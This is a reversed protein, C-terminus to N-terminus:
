LGHHKKYIEEAKKLTELDNIGILRYDNELTYSDVKYNKGLIEVIDTLYYEKVQNNPKIQHLAKLLIQIDVCYLASNIEKIKQEEETADKQEVIKKILGNERYIRGYGTPDDVMTTVVTLDHHNSLHIERLNSIIDRDILPMDGPFIYCLGEKNQLLKECCLVAHGTGLQEKQEVYTVQDKLIKIIEEKQYGVVAIIDEVGSARCEEVIRQVMPKNCFPVACKPLETKMRTGKGASLIIAIQEKEM